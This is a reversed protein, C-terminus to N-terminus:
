LHLRQAINLLAPYEFKSSCVPATSWAGNEGCRIADMSNYIIYGNDCTYAVTAEYKTDRVYHAVRGNLIDPPLGCDM